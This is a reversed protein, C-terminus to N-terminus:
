NVRARPRGAAATNTPAAASDSDKLFDDLVDLYADISDGADPGLDSKLERLQNADAQAERRLDAMNLSGDLLGNVMEDYKATATPNGALMQDRVQAIFNTNAGLSRFATSFDANTGTLGTSSPAAPFNTPVSVTAVDGAAKTPVANTGFALGSVNKRPVTIKGLVESELVVADASVSLVRGVYRDGNQMEVVDARPGPAAIFIMGSLALLLKIKMAAFYGVPPRKAFSALRVAVPRPRSVIRGTFNRATAAYNGGHPRKGNRPGTKGETCAM